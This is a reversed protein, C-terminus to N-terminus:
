TSNKGIPIFEMASAVANHFLIPICCRISTALQARVATTEIGPPDHSPVLETFNRVRFDLEFM